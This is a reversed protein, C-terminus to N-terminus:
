FDMDGLIELIVCFIEPIYKIVWYLYFCGPIFYMFAKLTSYNRLQLFNYYQVLELISLIVIIISLM